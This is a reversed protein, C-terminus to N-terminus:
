RRKGRLLAAVVRQMRPRLQGDAGGALQHMTLGDVTAVLLHADGEPDATGARRLLTVAAELYADTWRQALEQLAPRRTAEFWLSYSAVLSGRGHRLERELPGVLLAVLAEEVDDTDLEAAHTRLRAIDREAALELAAALLEDKSSFWYTTSALPLKAAEAVRRHTVAEPGADAVVRLVADLLATRRAAGRPRTASRTTAVSSM